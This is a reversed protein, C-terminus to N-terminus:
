NIQDISALSINFTEGKKVEIRRQHTCNHENNICLCMKLPQSSISTDTINSIHKLYMIGNEGDEYEKTYQIRVEAYRSVACRDLLGGYLNSGSIDASNESFNLSQTKFQLDRLGLGSFSFLYNSKVYAHVQFFCEMKPDITCM